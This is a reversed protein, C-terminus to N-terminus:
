RKFLAFILWITYLLISLRILLLVFTLIKYYNNYTRVPSFPREFEKYFNKMVGSIEYNEKYYFRKRLAGWDIKDSLSCWAKYGVKYIRFYSNSITQQYNYYIKLLIQIVIQGICYLIYSLSSKIINALYVSIISYLIIIVIHLIISKKLKGYLSKLQNTSKTIVELLSEIELELEYKLREM